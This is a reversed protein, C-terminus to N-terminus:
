KKRKRARTAGVKQAIRREVRGLKMEETLVKKAIKEINKDMKAVRRELLVLVRLSYVIAALAGVIVALTLEQVGLAM